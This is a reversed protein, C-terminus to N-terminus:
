EKSKLLEAERTSICVYALTPLRHKSPLAVVGTPTQLLTLNDLTNIQQKIHETQSKLIDWQLTRRFFKIQQTTGVNGQTQM